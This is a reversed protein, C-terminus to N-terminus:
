PTMSQPLVDRVEKNLDNGLFSSFQSRSAAGRRENKVFSGADLALIINSDEVLSEMMKSKVLAYSTSPTPHEVM